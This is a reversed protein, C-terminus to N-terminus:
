WSSVVWFQQQVLAWRLMTQWQMRKVKSPEADLRKKGGPRLFYIAQINKLLLIQVLRTIKLFSPRERIGQYFVSLHPRVGEEFYEGEMGLQWLRHLYLGLTIDSISFSLKFSQLLSRSLSRPALGGGLWTGQRDERALEQEM